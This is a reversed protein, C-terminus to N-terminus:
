SEKSCLEEASAEHSIEGGKCVSTASVVEDEWDPELAGDDGIILELFGTINKAFMKSADYAVMGPLNAEGIITVGHKVVNEGAASGEVNGGMEVAMDVIVSGARMGKVMEDTVLIPAKRGPILATTIVVHSDAIHETLIERQKKLFDEGMEKAYHDGAAKVYQELQGVYPWVTDEMFVSPEHEVIETPVGELSPM